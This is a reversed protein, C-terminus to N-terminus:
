HKGFVADISGMLTAHGNHFHIHYIVREPEFLHIIEAARLFDELHDATKKPDHRYEKLYRESRNFMLLAAKFVADTQDQKLLEGAILVQVKNM